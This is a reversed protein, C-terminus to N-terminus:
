AQILNHAAAQAKVFQIAADQDDFMEDVVAEFEDNFVLVGYVGVCDYERLNVDNYDIYIRIREQAGYLVVVSPCTDNQWSSDIVNLSSLNQMVAEFADANDYDAFANIYNKTM